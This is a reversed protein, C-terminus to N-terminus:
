DRAPRRPKHAVAYVAELQLADIGEDAIWGRVQERIRAAADVPLEAQIRAIGTSQVVREWGDIGGVLAFTGVETEVAAEPVGADALLEGLVTPDETRQWPTLGAVDVGEAAVAELYRPFIPTFFEKGLTTVVLRGGPRVMDWMREVVAAVDDAFFLAFVSVVVDFDSPRWPLSHFDGQVFEVNEVSRQAARESAIRLMEASIDVGVVDGDPGVDQAARVTMEGPGCGVDLVREGPQPGAYQLTRVISFPWLEASASAYGAAADDYVQQAGWATPQLVVDDTM